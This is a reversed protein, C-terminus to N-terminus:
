PRYCSSKNDKQGCQSALWLTCQLQLILKPTCVNVAPWYILEEQFIQFHYWNCISEFTIMSLRMWRKPILSLFFFSTLLWFTHLVLVNFTIMRQAICKFFLTKTTQSHVISSASFKTNYSHLELFLCQNESLKPVCIVVLSYIYIDVILTKVSTLQAKISSINDM